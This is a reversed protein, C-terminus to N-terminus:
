ISAIIGKEKSDRTTIEFDAPSFKTSKSLTENIDRFFVERIKM